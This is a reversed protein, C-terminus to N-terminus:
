GFFDEPFIQFVFGPSKGPEYRIKKLRERMQSESILSLELGESIVDWYERIFRHLGQYTKIKQKVALVAIFMILWEPYTFRKGREGNREIDPFGTEKLFGRFYAMTQRIWKKSLKKAKVM